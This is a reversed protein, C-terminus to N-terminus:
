QIQKRILGRSYLGGVRIVGKIVLPMAIVTQNQINNDNM